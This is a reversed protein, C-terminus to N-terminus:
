PASLSSFLHPQIYEIRYIPKSFSLEFLVKGSMDMKLATQSSSSAALLTHDPLLLGSGMIPSYNQIPLDTISTIRATRNIEDIAFSVIRSYPREENGNDFLMVNGSYNRYAYHQHLFSFPTELSINGEEGLKWLVKGSKSHVKWIQNLARLSLLYHGDHDMFVSNIWPSEKLGPPLEDEVDFTSWEWVKNGSTSWEVLGDGPSGDQFTHTIAVINGNPKVTMDHHISKDFGKQGHELYFLTDGGLSRELVINGDGFNTANKDLLSLITGRETVQVNKVVGETTQYWVIEGNQDILYICGPNGMSSFLYYGELSDKIKNAKPNYFETIWSPISPTKFSRKESSEIESDKNLINIEAEYETNEKLKLLPISHEKASPSFSSKTQQSQGKINYTIEVQKSTSLSIVVRAALASGSDNIIHIDSDSVPLTNEQKSCSIFLCLLLIRGASYISRLCYNM